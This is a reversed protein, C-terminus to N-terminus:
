GGRRLRDLPGDARNARDGLPVRVHDALVELWVLVILPDRGLVDLLVEVGGQPLGVLEVADHVREDVLDFLPETEHLDALESPVALAPRDAPRPTCLVPDLEDLDDCPKGAVVCWQETAQQRWEHVPDPDATREYGAPTRRCRLEDQDVALSESM